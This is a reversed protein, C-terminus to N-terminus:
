TPAAVGLGRCLHGSRHRFAGCLGRGVRWVGGGPGLGLLWAWEWPGSEEKGPDRFEKRGAASLQPGWAGLSRFNRHVAPRLQARDSDRGPTPWWPVGCVLLPLRLWAGAGFRPPQRKARSRIYRQVWVRFRNGSGRMTCCCPNPAPHSRPHQKVALCGESLKRTWTGVRAGEQGGGLAVLPKRLHM